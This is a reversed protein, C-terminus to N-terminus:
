CRASASATAHLAPRGALRPAKVPRAFTADALDAAPAMRGLVAAVRSPRPAASDRPLAAVRAPAGAAGAYAPAAARRRADAPGALRLGRRDLSAALGAAASGITFGCFMLTVLSSRRKEPCLEATLTIAAPMAGGLGLGTVFRLATLTQIDPAFASAFTALGFFVTTAVLVPKRGVRDALPGFVFAGAM